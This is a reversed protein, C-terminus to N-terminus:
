RVSWQKYLKTLKEKEKFYLVERLVGNGEKLQQYDYVRCGWINQKTFHFWNFELDDEKISSDFKCGLQNNLWYDTKEETSLFNLRTVLKDSENKQM